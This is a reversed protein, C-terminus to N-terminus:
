YFLIYACLSGWVFFVLCYLDLMKKGGGYFCFAGGSVTHFPATARKM